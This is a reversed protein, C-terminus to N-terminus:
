LILWLSESQMSWGANREAALLVVRQLSVSNISSAPLMDLVGMRVVTESFTERADRTILLVSLTAACVQIRQVTMLGRYAPHTADVVVLTFSASGTARLVEEAEEVGEAHLVRVPPRRVSSALGLILEFHENNPGVHLIRHEQKGDKM